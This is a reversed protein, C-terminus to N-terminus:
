NLFVILSMVGDGHTCSIVKVDGVTWCQLEWMRRNGGGEGFSFEINLYQIQM